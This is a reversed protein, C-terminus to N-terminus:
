AGATTPASWSEHVPPWDDATPRRGIVVHGLRLEFLRYTGDVEFPWTTAVAARIFGDEVLVARGRFLLESPAEPDQHAHLAFRGDEELDTLKASPLVFVYLRGDVIGVSVPHVRPLGDGRVTALLGEDGGGRRLLLRADAALDPAAAAFAAWPQATRPDRM